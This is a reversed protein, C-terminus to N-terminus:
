VLVKLWHYKDQYCEWGVVEIPTGVPLTRIIVDNGLRPERRFNLRVLTKKDTSWNSNMAVYGEQKEQPLLSVGFYDLVKQMPQICMISDSGAFLQAVVRNNKDFVWSSSDGGAGLTPETFIMGGYSLVGGASNVRVIVNVDLVKAKRYGTTRGEKWVYDGPKVNAVEPIYDTKITNRLMDVEMLNLGADMENIKSETRPYWEAVTAVRCSANGGDFLSPQIIVDGKITENYKLGLRGQCHNNVLAYTKGDKYVPGGSTCASSAHNCMSVGTKVPRHKDRYALEVPMESEIVDTEIGEYYKPIIDKVELDELAEKKHVRVRICTEGKQKKLFNQIRKLPSSSEKYGESVAWVNKKKLLEKM